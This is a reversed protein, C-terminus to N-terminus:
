KLPIAELLTLDLQYGILGHNKLVLHRAFSRNAVSGIADALVTRILRKQSNYQQVSFTGDDQIVLDTTTEPSGFRCVRGGDQM